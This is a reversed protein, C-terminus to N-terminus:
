FSSHILVNLVTKFYLFPSCTDNGSIALLAGCMICKYKKGTSKCQNAPRIASIQLDCPASIFRKDKRWHIVESLGAEAICRVNGLCLSHRAHESCTERTFGRPLHRYTQIRLAISYFSKSDVLTRSGPIVFHLTSRDEPTTPDNM